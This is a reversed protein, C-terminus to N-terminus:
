SSLDSSEDDFPSELKMIKFYVDEKNSFEKLIAKKKSVFKSLLLNSPLHYLEQDYPYFAVRLAWPKMLRSKTV